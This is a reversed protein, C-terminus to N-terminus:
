PLNAVRGYQVGLCKRQRDLSRQWVGWCRKNPKGNIRTSCDYGGSFRYRTYANCADVYRGANTYLVMSSACATPVGYQYAFDVLIDYEAQSMPAAVCRKLGSEDKSIHNVSRVIAAVPTITDGMQVPTGDDRFTSGLGVTPRDNKTPIVAKETYHENVVISAFGAASLVLAAIPLRKM